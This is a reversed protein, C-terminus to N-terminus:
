QIPAWSEFLSPMQVQAVDPQDKGLWNKDYYNFDASKVVLIRSLNQTSNKVCSVKDLSTKKPSTGM